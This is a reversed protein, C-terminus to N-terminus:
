FGLQSVIAANFEAADVKYGRVLQLNAVIRVIQEESQVVYEHKTRTHKYINFQYAGETAQTSLDTPSWLSELDEDWLELQDQVIILKIDGDSYQMSNSSKREAIITAYIAM